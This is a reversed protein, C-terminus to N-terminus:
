AGVRVVCYMSDCRISEFSVGIQVLMHRLCYGLQGAMFNTLSAITVKLARKAHTHRLTLPQSPFLQTRPRQPERWAHSLSSITSYPALWCCKLLVFVNGLSSQCAHTTATVSTNYLGISM